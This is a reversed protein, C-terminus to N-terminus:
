LTPLFEELRNLTQNGGEVAGYERVVYDRMEATGFLSRMTLFTKNDQKEFTVIVHFANPDNDIDEGHAYVLQENETVEQYTIRNGYDVGDPGHMVYRWVGGPAVNMEFVTTTFGNPGWWKVVHEAQTWAKYV